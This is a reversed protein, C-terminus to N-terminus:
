FFITSENYIITHSPHLTQLSSSPKISMLSQPKSSSKPAKFFITPAKFAITYAQLRNHAMSSSQTVVKVVIKPAQLRKHPRQPLNHPRSSSHPPKFVNTPSMSSSQPPKFKLFIFIALANLM